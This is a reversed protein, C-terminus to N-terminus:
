AEEEIENPIVLKGPPHAQLWPTTATGDEIRRAPTNFPSLYTEENVPGGWKARYYARSGASIQAEIAAKKAADVSKLTGSAYHLYPLPVSFIRSGDGGLMFRRHMDVDETYAPIFNEDFRYRQHGERTILFCSFDPGGKPGDTLDQVQQLTLWEPHYDAETVGVASVFLADTRIQAVHLVEVLDGPLRVDNNVVLAETGGAAWVFDLARNWTAALSPLPPVHSWLFVRDPQAEATRELEDRFDDDVGQNIVLLRTPVSQRLCDAIAALTYARAGLVPMVIWTPSPSM